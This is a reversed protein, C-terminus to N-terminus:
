SSSGGWGVREGQGAREGLGAGEVGGQGRLTKPSSYKFFFSFSLQPSSQLSALSEGEPVKRPAQAERGVSEQGGCKGQPQRSIKSDWDASCLEKVVTPSEPNLRVM